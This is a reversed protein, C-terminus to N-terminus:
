NQTTCLVFMGGTPDRRITIPLQREIDDYSLFIKSKKTVSRIECTSDSGSIHLPIALASGPTLLVVASLILIPFIHRFRMRM